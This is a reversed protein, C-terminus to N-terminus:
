YSDVDMQRRTTRPSSYLYTQKSRNIKIESTEQPRKKPWIVYWNEKQSIPIVRNVYKFEKILKLDKLLYKTGFIKIAKEITKRSRERLWRYSKGVYELTIKVEPVSETVSKQM